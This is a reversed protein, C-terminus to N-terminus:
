GPALRWGPSGFREGVIVLLKARSEQSSSKFFLLRSLEQKAARACHKSICETRCLGRGEEQMCRAALDHASNQRQHPILESAAANHFPSRCIAIQLRAKSLGKM